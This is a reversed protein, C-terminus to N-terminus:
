LMSLSHRFYSTVLLGIKRHNSIRVREQRIRAPSVSRIKNFLTRYYMYAVYVGFRSNSPLQKIGEFAEKFDSEIDQEIGKKDADTFSRFAVGPFYVRGLHEFDDKIDRLFNVKQFAAGLKRASPVLRHYLANDGASFVKLCMLGVVEASGVIYEDYTQGSHSQENLDIEMSKLFCTILTHDIHHRNVVEQFSNLIPNLSIGREIARWTEASFEDFLERKNYEHFSDVIEDAFRVFGYIAYIPEHVTKSLCNIGLSFSTSYARTTLKSCAASVKDFLQKM